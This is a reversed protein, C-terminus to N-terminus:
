VFQFRAGLATKIESTLPYDLNSEDIELASIVASCTISGYNKVNDSLLSNATYKYAADGTGVAAAQFIVDGATAAGGNTLHSLVDYDDNSTDIATIAVGNGSVAKAIVDGVKFLHGKDVRTATTTSSAQATATKVPQAVRSDYDVYIPCGKLIYANLTASPMVDAFTFGGSAREAMDEGWLVKRVPDNTGITLHM